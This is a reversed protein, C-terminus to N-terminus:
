DNVNTLLGYADAPSLNAFQIIRLSFAKGFMYIGLSVDNADVTSSVGSGADFTIGADHGEADEVIWLNNGYNASDNQGSTVRDKLRFCLVMGFNEYPDLTANSVSPAIAVNNAYCEAYTETVEDNEVTQKISILEDNTKDYVFYREDEDASTGADLLYYVKVNSNNVLTIGTTIRTGAEIYYGIPNEDEDLIPQGYEDVIPEANSPATVAPYGFSNGNAVKNHVKTESSFTTIEVNGFRLTVSSGDGGDKDTFWAGSFNFFISVALLFAVIILGLSYGSTKVKVKKM